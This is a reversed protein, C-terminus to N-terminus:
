CKKYHVLLKQKMIEFVLLEIKILIHVISTNKIFLYYIDLEAKM